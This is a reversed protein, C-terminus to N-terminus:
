LQTTTHPALRVSLLRSFIPSPASMGVTGKDGISFISKKARGTEAVYAKVKRIIGSNTGGCMGKDSTLTVILEQADSPTAPARDKMYMDSTFINDVANIGFNKGNLLRTLDAKMKSTAVMKM